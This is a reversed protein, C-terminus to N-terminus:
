GDIPTFVGIAVGTPDAVVAFRGMPIDSPPVVVRGGLQAAKITSTAVDKVKVYPIWCPQQGEWDPGAMTMMGANDKGANRFVTYTVGPIVEKEKRSWNFLGQYFDGCREAGNTMLEHWVVSGVPPPPPAPPTQAATPPPALASRSTPKAGGRKKAGVKAQPKASPKKKVATTKAAAKKKAANKLQAAAPKKAATTKAPKGATKKATAKKKSVKKKAMM